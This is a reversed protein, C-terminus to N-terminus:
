RPLVLKMGPLILNPNKLNNAKAVIPWKYGDSYARVCIKWLNDGKVVTYVEQTIQDNITSDKTPTPTQTPTPSPSIEPIEIEQDVEITFPSKINNKQAIEVWRYGNNYYQQAIKWLNEGRKVKHIKTETISSTNELSIPPAIEGSQKNLYRVGFFAIASIALIAGFALSINNEHLKLFKLIKKITQDM